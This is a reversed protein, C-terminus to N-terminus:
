RNVSRVASNLLSLCSSQQWNAALGTEVFLFGCELGRLAPRLVAPLALAAPRVATLRPCPCAPGRPVRESGAAGPLSPAKQNGSLLPTARGCFAVPSLRAVCLARRSQVARPLLRPLCRLCEMTRLCGPSPLWVGARCAPVRTSRRVPVVACRAQALRGRAQAGSDM